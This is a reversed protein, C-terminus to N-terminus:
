HGAVSVLDLSYCGSSTRLLIKKPPPHLRPPTACCGLEPRPRGVTSTELDCNSVSLLFLLRVDYGRRLEFGRAILAIKRGCLPRLGCRWESRSLIVSLSM